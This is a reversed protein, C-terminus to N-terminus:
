ETLWAHRFEYRLNPKYIIDQVRNNVAMFRATRFVHIVPVDELMHQYYDIYMDRREDIDYTRRAGELLQDVEPNDYNTINAAGESHFRRYNLIDPDGAGTYGCIMIGFDGETLVQDVFTSVEMRRLEVDIGLDALEQQMVEGMPGEIPTDPVLLTDDFDIDLDEIIERAKEEDRDFTLEDSFWPTEEALSVDAVTGYGDLVTDMVRQKDIGLQIAQRLEQNDWPERELNFALYYFGLLDRGITDFDDDAQFRPVDVPEIWLHVDADGAELMGVQSSYEPVYLFELEDLYPIDEKFFDEHREMVIKHDTIWEVFKFPGAGVPETEFDGEEVPYIPFQTLYEWLPGYAEELHLYFSYDDIVEVDEIASLHEAFPSGIEPDQVREVSKKVDEAVLERGNHFLVNEEIEFYIQTDDVAEWDTALYGELELEESYTLLTVHMPETVTTTLRALSTTGDLHPPEDEIMVRLTGGYKDPEVDEDPDPDVPEVEEPACGAFAVAAALMLVLIVVSWRRLM